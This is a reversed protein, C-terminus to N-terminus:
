TIKCSKRRIKLVMRRGRWYYMKETEESIEWPYKPSSHSRQCFDCVNKFDIIEKVIGCKPCYYEKRTKKMEIGCKECISM